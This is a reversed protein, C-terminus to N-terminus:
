PGSPMQGTSDVTMWQDPQIDTGALAFLGDKYTQECDGYYTILVDRAEEAAKNVSEMGGALFDANMEFIGARLKKVNFMKFLIDMVNRLHTAQRDILDKAKRRLLNVQSATLRLKQGTHGKCFPMLKEDIESLAMPALAASVSEYREFFARMKQRFEKYKESDTMKPSGGVIKDVFLMALAHIGPERVITEGPTPLSGDVIYPFKLRCVQSYGEATMTGRIAAVNLLQVARAVCHAKVPPDKRLATWLEKVKFAPPIKESNYPQPIGRKYEIGGTSSEQDVGKLIAEFLSQLYAPITEGKENTPTGTGGIGTSFKNYKSEYKLYLRGRLEAPDTTMDELNVRVSYERPRGEVVPAQKVVMTTKLGVKRSRDDLKITDEYLIEIVPQAAKSWPNLISLKTGLIPVKGEKEKLYQYKYLLAIGSFPTPNLREYTKKFLEQLLGPLPKGKSSLPNETTPPRYFLDDSANLSKGPADTVQIDELTVRLKDGDRELKLRGFITKYIDSFDDPKFTYSVYPALERKLARSGASGDPFEYLDTQAITIPYESFKLPTTKDGTGAPPRVLFQNLIQYPGAIDPVLYFTRSDSGTTLAGGRGLFGRVGTKPAAQQFGQLQDPQLVFAARQGDTGRPPIFDAPDIEPLDSDLVSLALAGYIQFIRVFFFALHKCFEDQKAGLPNAKQIGELKQFFFTGDAGLKPELQIKVFLQRLASEAVVVYRKCRDPDSLSYLDILDARRFMEQLITNLIQKTEAPTPNPLPRTFLNGM